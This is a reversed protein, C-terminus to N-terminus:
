KRIIEKTELDYTYELKVNDLGLIVIKGFIPKIKSIVIIDIANENQTIILDEYELNKELNKRLKEESFEEDKSIFVLTDYIVSDNKRATILNNGLEVTITIFLFIVPLLLIFVVLVQGKKNMM